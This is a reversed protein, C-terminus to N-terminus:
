TSPELRYGLGRISQIYGHAGCAHLKKRLHSIHSDVTRDFANSDPLCADLLEARSFVRRPASMLHELLHFESLTLSMPMPASGATVNVEHADRDLAIPGFRLVANQAMAGNTRRLVAKVREVVEQPNFPKIVYDDAGTRLAILRDIDESRATVMIVPTAGLRRLETLVAFGDQKPLGIDLIVLDPKLAKYLEVAAHGDLACSTRFGDRTLYADLIESIEREDEVILILENSM